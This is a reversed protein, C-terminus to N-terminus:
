MEVRPLLFAQLSWLWRPFSRMAGEQPGQFTGGPVVLVGGAPLLYYLIPLLHFSQLLYIILLLKLRNCCNAGWVIWATIFNYLNLTNRIRQSCSQKCDKPSGDSRGAALRGSSPRRGRSHLFAHPALIHMSVEFCYLFM